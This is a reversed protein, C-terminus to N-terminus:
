LGQNQIAAHFERIGAIEGQIQSLEDPTCVELRTRRAEIKQQALDAIIQRMTSPPKWERRAHKILEPTLGPNAKLLRQDAPAHDSM